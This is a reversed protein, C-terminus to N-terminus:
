KWNSPEMLRSRGRCLSSPKPFAVLTTSTPRMPSRSSSSPRTAQGSRDGTSPHRFRCYLLRRPTQTDNRLTITGRAGLRHQEPEVQVKLDYNTITFAERDLAFGNVVSACLVCLFGLIKYFLTMEFKM